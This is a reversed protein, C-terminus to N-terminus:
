KSGKLRPDDAAICKSEHPLANRADSDRGIRKKDIVIAECEAATDFYLYKKWKSLPADADYGTLGVFPPVMLNWGVDEKLRPDDSAICQSLKLAKRDEQPTFKGGETKCPKAGPKRYEPRNVCQIWDRQSEECNALTGYLGEQTWYMFPIKPRRPNPILLYWGVLALASGHRLKM